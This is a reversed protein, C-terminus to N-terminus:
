LTVRGKVILWAQDMNENGWNGVDQNALGSFLLTKFYHFIQISYRYQLTTSTRSGDLRYYAAVPSYQSVRDAWDVVLRGDALAQLFDDGCYKRSFIVFGTYANTEPM